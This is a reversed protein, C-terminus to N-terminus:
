ESVELTVRLAGTEFIKNKIEQKCDSVTGWIEVESEIIISTGVDSTQNKISPNILSLEDSEKCINLIKALLVFINVYSSQPAYTATIVINSNEM